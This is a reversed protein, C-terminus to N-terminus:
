IISFIYKYIIIARAIKAIASKTTPTLLSATFKRFEAIPELAAFKLIIMSIAARPTKTPAVNELPIISIARFPINLGSIYTKASIITTNTVTINGENTAETLQVSESNFMPRVFGGSMDMAVKYDLNGTDGVGHGTFNDVIFGNKFRDFGEADQIQLSQANAELLSLQTYYEVNSIRKELAGIDRM